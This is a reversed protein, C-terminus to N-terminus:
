ENTEERLVEAALHREHQITLLRAVDQKLQRIRTYDELQGSTWQFRLNFMEQRADHIAQAIEGDTMRRIEATNAM